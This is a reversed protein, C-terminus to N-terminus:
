LVLAKVQAIMFAKPSDLLHATTICCASVSLLLDIRVQLYELEGMSESILTYLSRLGAYSSSPQDGLKYPFFFM